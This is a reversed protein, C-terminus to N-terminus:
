AKCSTRFTRAGRPMPSTAKPTRTRISLGPAVTLGSADITRTARVGARPADRLFVIRDGRLGVDLHRAAAGTGDYVTGGRIVVDVQMGQAPSTRPLCALVAVLAITKM